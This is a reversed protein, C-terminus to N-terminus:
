TSVMVEFTKRDGGHNPQGNKFIQSVFSWPYTGSTKIVERDKGCEHSIVPYTVLIVRLTDSTSCSSRIGRSCRLDGGINLPIRTVRDKSKHTHKM